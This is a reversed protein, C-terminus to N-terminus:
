YVRREGRLCSFLYDVRKEPTHHSVSWRIANSVLLRRRDEHKLYYNALDILDSLDPQCFIVDLEHRYNNPIVIRPKQSIMLPGGMAPIEWYRLTDWGGGRFNLSIKSSKLERLYRDGKRPYKSFKQNKVSGNERCDFKGFLLDFVSTRIPDSEVAWFTVDYKFPIEDLVNKAPDFCMPMPFVNKPYDVGELFERKFVYDIQRKSCAAHFLHPKGYVDLDAGIIPQDGGDIFVVKADARLFDVIELYKAFTDVKSSAIFILDFNKLDSKSLGRPLLGSLGTYGLNKPYKKYGIHFKKNWPLDIVSRPGFKRILGAYFLDQVYDTGLSNLYLIKM